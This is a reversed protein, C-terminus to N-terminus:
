SDLTIKLFRKNVLPTQKFLRECLKYRAYLGKTPLDKIFSHDPYDKFSKDNFKKKESAKYFGDLLYHFRPHKCVRIHVNRLSFGKEKYMPRALRIWHFVFQYKKDHTKAPTKEVYKLISDLSINKKAAADAIAKLKKEKTDM